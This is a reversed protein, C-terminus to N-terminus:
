ESKLRLPQRPEPFTADAVAHRLETKSDRESMSHVGFLQNLKGVLEPKSLNKLASFLEGRATAREASLVEYAALRDAYSRRTTPANATETMLTTYIM